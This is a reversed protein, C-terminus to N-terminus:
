RRLMMGFSTQGFGIILVKTGLPPQSNKICVPRINLKIEFDRDLTLIAIDNPQGQVTNQYGPHIKVDTVQRIEATEISSNFYITNSGGVVVTPPDGVVGHAATLVHKRSILSGGLRFDYDNGTKTWGIRM